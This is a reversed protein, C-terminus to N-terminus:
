LALPVPKVTCRVSRTRGSSKHQTMFYRSKGVQKVPVLQCDIQDLLILWSGEYSRGAGVGSRMDPVCIYEPPRTPSLPRLGPTDPLICAYLDAVAMGLPTAATSPLDQNGGLVAVRAPCDLGNATRMVAQLFFDIHVVYPVRVVVGGPGPELYHMLCWADDKRAQRKYQTCSVRDGTPTIARKYKCMCVTVEDWAEEGGCQLGLERVIAARRTDGDPEHPHTPWRDTDELEPMTELVCALGTVPGVGSYPPLVAKLEEQELETAAGEFGNVGAVDAPLSARKRHRKRRALKAASIAEEMELLAAGGKQLLMQRCARVLLYGNIFLLEPAGTSRYKILRKLLQVLREIWYELFFASAGCSRVQDPLHCAAVHLKFTCLRTGKFVQM